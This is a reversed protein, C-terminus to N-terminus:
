MNTVRRINRQDSRSPADSRPSWDYLKPISGGHFVAMLVIEDVGVGGARFPMEADANRQRGVVCKSFNEAIFPFFQM